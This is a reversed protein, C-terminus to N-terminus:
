GLQAEWESNVVSGYIILADWVAVKYIITKADTELIARQVSFGPGLYTSKIRQFIGKIGEMEETDENPFSVELRYPAEIYRGAGLKYECGRLIKEAVPVLLEESILLATQENEPFGEHLGFGPFTDMGEEYRATKKLLGVLQAQRHSEEDDKIGVVGVGLDEM